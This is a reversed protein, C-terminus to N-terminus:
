HILWRFPSPIRCRAAKWPVTSASFLFTQHLPNSRNKTGRNSGDLTDLAPGHSPLADGPKPFVLPHGLGKM